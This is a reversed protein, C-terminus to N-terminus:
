IGVKLEHSYKMKKQQEHVIFLKRMLVWCKLMSKITFVISQFRHNKNKTLVIFKVTVDFLIKNWIQCIIKSEYIFSGVGLIVSERMQYASTKSMKKSANSSKHHGDVNVRCHRAYKVIQLVCCLRNTPFSETPVRVHAIYLLQVTVSRDKSM